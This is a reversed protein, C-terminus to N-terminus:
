PAPTVDTWGNLNGDTPGNMIVANGKNLSKSEFTRTYTKSDNSLTFTYDLTGSKPSGYFSVGDTNSYGRLPKGYNINSTGVYTSFSIGSKSLLQNCKLEWGDAIDLNKITIQAVEPKLTMNLKITSGDVTYTGDNCTMCCIGIYETDFSLGANWLEVAIPITDMYGANLTKTEKAAVEAATTGVWEPAWSTGNYSLKLYKLSTNVNKDGADGNFVVYVVDGNKWSSRPARTDDGFSPKDMNVVLKYGENQTNTDDKSCSVFAMALISMVLLIKKM